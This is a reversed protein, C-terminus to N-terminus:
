GAWYIRDYVHKRGKTRVSNGSIRNVPPPHLINM